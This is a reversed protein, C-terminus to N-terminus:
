TPFIFPIDFFFDRINLDNFIAITKPEYGIAMVPVNNLISFVASHLRTAVFYDMQGYLNLLEGIELEKEIVMTKDKIPSPLNNWIMNSVRRDDEKYPGVVQPMFYFCLNEESGRALLSNISAIYSEFEKQDSWSRVTLGICKYGKRKNETISQTVADARVPERQGDLLFALDGASFLNKSINLRQRLFTESETDRTTILDCKKFLKSIIYRSYPNNIPGFSQALLVIPKKFKRALILQHLHGMIGIPFFNIKYEPERFFSGGKSIVLDADQYAKLTKIKEPSYFWTAVIPWNLLCLSIHYRIVFRIARWRGKKPTSLVPVFFGVGRKAWWEREDIYRGIISFKINKNKKKLGEMLGLIIALDGKNEKAHHNTILIKM